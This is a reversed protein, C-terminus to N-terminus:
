LPVTAAQRHADAVVPRPAAQHFLHPHDPLPGAAALHAARAVKQHIEVVGQGAIVQSMPAYNAFFAVRLQRNGAVVGLIVVMHRRHQLLFVATELDIVAAVAIGHQGGVLEGAGPIPPMRQGLRNRGGVARHHNADIHALHMRLPNGSRGFEPLAHDEIALVAIGHDGAFFGFGGQRHPIFGHVM